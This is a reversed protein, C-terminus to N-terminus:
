TQIIQQKRSNNMCFNEDPLDLIQEHAECSQLKTMESSLKPSFNDVLLYWMLGAYTASPIYVPSWACSGTPM